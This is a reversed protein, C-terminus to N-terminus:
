NQGAFCVFKCLSSIKAMRKKRKKAKGELLQEHGMCFCLFQVPSVYMKLFLMNTSIKPPSPSKSSLMVLTDEVQSIKLNRLRWGTVPDPSIEQPGNWESM